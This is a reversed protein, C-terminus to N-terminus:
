ESTRMIEVVDKLGETTIENDLLDLEELLQGTTNEYPYHRVLLKIGKDGIRCHKMILCSVPHCSLVHRSIGFCDYPFIHLGKSTFDLTFPSLSPAPIDQLWKSENICRVATIVDLGSRKQLKSYVFQSIESSGVEALSCVFTFVNPYEQFNEELLHFQEQQSLLTIYVACLFEQITLHAFSYTNTDAPLQHIRAAKLLGFGDFVPTVQIDCQILDSETFIIKPDKAKRLSDRTFRQKLKDYWDFLGRYALKCLQLVIEVMEKRIGKLMRCLEKESDTAKVVPSLGFAKTEVQRQLTMVIFIQYLETLTSPLKKESCRFIDVVMVLNMPVYCLSHLHPYDDLQRLFEVSQHENPFSKEVFEKIEHKGFGVIEIKRHANLDECAHPRSTIIVTAEELVTNYDKILRELFPDSQRRSLAMEDFGELIILCRSGASNMLQQYHQKGVHEKLVKRFSRQQVSRMPILIVADFDETLFENRAWKFCIENALTTKGIGVCSVNHIDSHIYDLTM